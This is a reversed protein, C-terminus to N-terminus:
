WNLKREVEEFIEIVYTRLSDGCNPCIKGPRQSMKKDVLGPPSGLYADTTDMILTSWTRKCNFCHIYGHYAAVSHAFDEDGYENNEVKEDLLLLDQGNDWQLFRVIGFPPDFWFGVLLILRLHPYELLKEQLAPDPLEEVRLNDLDGKLPIDAKTFYIFKVGEAIIEKM